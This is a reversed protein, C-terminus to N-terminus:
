STGGPASASDESTWGNWDATVACHVLDHDHGFAEFRHGKTDVDDALLWEGQRFRKRDGTTTVIEFEGRLAVV